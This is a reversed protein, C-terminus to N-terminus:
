GRASSRIFSPTGPQWALMSTDAASCRGAERAEGAPVTAVMIRCPEGPKKAVYALRAGDSSWTPSVDDYTDNTIKIGEGATLNRVYIQHQGGEPGSTYALMKGDPSFAPYDELALTSIFPRSSEM